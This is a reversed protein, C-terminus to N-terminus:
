SKRKKTTILFSFFPNKVGKREIVILIKKRRRIQVYFDNFFRKQLSFGSHYRLFRLEKLSIDWSFALIETLYESFIHTHFIVDYKGQGLM